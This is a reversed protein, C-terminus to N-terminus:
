GGHASRKALPTALHPDAIASVAGSCYFGQCRGMMARTRRKLGGIDRAGLPGELAQEIERRTVRECHCVIEGHGPRAFDRPQDEALNAMVPWFPEAIPQHANGAAAYLDYCHRAIGLAATLGTSRIGGAAIYHRDSLCDVRYQKKETAPRLGAYVASVPIGALAPVLKAAHAVLRDLTEHDVTAADREDTEEATPGILVNGFITRCMVIGKTRETPVPLLITRLHASAAKDFVVFQGKRPKITFRSTGLALREVDDGHLGACNVLWRSSFEGQPTTIRWLGNNYHAAELGTGRLCEAGNDVAQRLYALPTSWPDIIHEGPVLVAGCVGPALAPERKYVEAPALMTADATGNRHAIDLIGPLKALEEDTWAIVMAGTEHLPLGLRERIALYEARGERMCQLELSDPEAD